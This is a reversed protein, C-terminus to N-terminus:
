DLKEIHGERILKDNETEVARQMHTPNRRGKQQKITMKNKYQVNYEFDKVTHNNNFLKQFKKKLDERLKSLKTEEGNGELNSSVSNSRVRHIKRPSSNRARKKQSDSKQKTERQMLCFGLRDFNDMGIIPKTNTEVERWIARSKTENMETHIKYRNMIPIPRGNVDVFKRGSKTRIVNKPKVTKQYSSPLISIPSGRDLIAAVKVGNLKIMFEFETENRQFTKGTTRVRKM